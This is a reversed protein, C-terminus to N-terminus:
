DDSDTDHRRRHSQTAGAPAKKLSAPSRSVPSGGDSSDTDHRQRRHHPDSPQREAKAGGRSHSDHPRAGSQSHYSPNHHHHDKRHRKRNDESESSSSDRRQRKKKKEKKKEKKNKKEKKKKKSEHRQEEEQKVESEATRTASTETRGETKHHTFVPLGMKAAEKEKQSLVMKRSGASSSGLGSIRDVNREDGDAEERRCVEVLDEKTLGTPQRKINKHGLAAMLAEEEAAKVAALEEQRSLAAGGKKDKAYWTLDKGKQWRGVPAMLSNGLYNERHKDVKVDDWNFQDQGGRVGGSRSSGFM